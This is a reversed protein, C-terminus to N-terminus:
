CLHLPQGPLAYRLLAMGLSQCLLFIVVGFVGALRRVLGSTSWRAIIQYSVYGVIPSVGCIIWGINGIARNVPKAGHGMAGSFMFLNGATVYAILLWGGLSGFRRRNTVKIDKQADTM